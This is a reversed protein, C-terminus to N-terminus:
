FLAIKKGFIYSALQGEEKHWDSCDLYGEKFGLYSNIALLDFNNIQVSCYSEVLSWDKRVKESCSDFNGLL